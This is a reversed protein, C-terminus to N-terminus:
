STVSAQTMNKNETIRKMGWVSLIFLFYYLVVARLPVDDLRFYAGPVKVCLFIFAAMINLVVKICISFVPTLLAFTLGATLLGIGLAITVAILPVVILNAFVAIPTIIQFYYAIFGAVGIYASLSVSLSQMVYWFIGSKLEPFLKKAANMLIPYLSIIAFVSVFSLQFGVDFVNLPNMLLILLGALGLTNLSDGEREVIFSTLFVVGMITARVVSARGGTLFSYFVLLFITLLYQGKRPVPLIKLFLFIVFGVIGLHLGSIALIHAVGSIQFLGRIRKPINYRDGLLVAQMIGNETKSLNGSLITKLRHKVRLSVARVPNGKDPEQIELYGQKKVSLILKIGRRNLFERYSFRGGKSFEFPKHM